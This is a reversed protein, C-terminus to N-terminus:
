LRPQPWDTQIPLDLLNRQPQLSFKRKLKEQFMIDVPASIFAAGPRGSEATRFANAVVEPVSVTADIEVSYKTIPRFLNVTDMRQHVQKRRMSVCVNGGIAVIPDGESNATAVGTVWNSCGPGSTVLVVGAKSTM